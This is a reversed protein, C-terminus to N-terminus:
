KSAKALKAASIAQGVHRQTHEAIHTLLGTVTTPLRKRGVQRPETLCEPDIARFVAEAECFSEELYTLLGERDADGEGEAAAAALQAASLQDGQLYATLREVSRAIHQIHFGVSALGHPTMWIQALSLHKTYHALDERAHQFSYFVPAVLPHVDAVPGRLWPEEM